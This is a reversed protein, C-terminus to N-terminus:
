RSPYQAVTGSQDELMSFPYGQGEGTSVSEADNEEDAGGPDETEAGTPNHYDLAECKVLVPVPSGSSHHNKGGPPLCDAQPMENEEDSAGGDVDLRRVEKQCKGVLFDNM